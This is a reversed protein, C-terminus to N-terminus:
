LLHPKEHYICRDVPGDPLSWSTDPETGRIDRYIDAIQRAIVSWAYTSRCEALADEALRTRLDDNEVMRYLAEALGDPDGPSVLLANDEDRLCDVVGVTETSVIPVGSAMAELITNSFGEAYTPSVFVDGRRYIDPVTDYPAYGTMEVRDEVGLTRIREEVAGVDPGIGSMILRVSDPLKAVADIMDVAGKREDVRGHYLLTPATSDQLAGVAEKDRPAFRDVDVAGPVITFRDLPTGHNERVEKAFSRSGILLRDAHGLVAQMAAELTKSKTGVWHGDGGQISVVNPIGLKRSAKLAALGPPYGYQAHIIDFPEAEHEAVVRDVIADIDREFDGNEAEGKSEMGIVTVDEVDNPPGGGYVGKGEPDDRYQALMTMDHGLDVMERLLNLAYVSMGSITPFFRRSIFCIRM